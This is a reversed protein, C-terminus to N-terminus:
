LGEAQQPQLVLDDADHDLPRSTLWTTWGLRGVTGMKLPPVEDKRLVLQVEWQLQDVLYNKVWAILRRLSQGGPLLREYEDLHMPGFRLRFRQQCEWVRAGVIATWGLSGTQPSEGLRCCCDRPVDLWQGIFEAIEVRIGYYDQLLQRLGEPHRTQCVLHGSYHLKGVDPVADRRRLSAMGIGFMSGVYRAFHDDEGREFQVAQQNTAWARYFFSIMRHHFVDLFRALARDGHNRERDRVYQTLHLPMPGNPGLLGLFSVYMRPARTGVERRYASITRPAFALSVEECFRVPDEAPRRSQGARPRDPHLNELRRVAQFFDFQHPAEELRRALEVSHAETRGPSAM